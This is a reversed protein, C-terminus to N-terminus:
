SLGDAFVKGYGCSRPILPQSLRVVMSSLISKGHVNQLSM